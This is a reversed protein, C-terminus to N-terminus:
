QWSAETSLHSWIKEGAEEKEKVYARWRYHAYTSLCAVSYAEALKKNGRIVVFNEDNKQSASKSFNHSGTIVVCDDSLPDIVIMKSHTIAFGVNHLFSGRNVEKLWYAFDHPIGEPVVLRSEHTEGGNGHLTFSENGFSDVRDKTITSVVGKVMIDGPLGMITNLPEDGPQFMVYLVSEKAGKVLEVLANIDKAHEEHNEPRIPNFWVEIKGNGSTRPSEENAAKLEASQDDGADALRNWQDFYYTAIKEDAILIGNNVQTCLGTAAWNTSGTWAKLPKKTKKNYVVAFKNHGLGKNGLMRDRVDVKAGRLKARAEENEDGTKDAGNALVVHGRSRLLCLERLLEDDQLEFLCAYLELQSNEIVEDLLKLIALRLEGSTFRRLPEELEKINAKIDKPGWGNDRAVRSVFQSMVFGRNFYACIGDECDATVEIPETWGSEEIVELPSEGITDGDPLRVAQINYIVVEGSNAGHDTWSYSQFPWINSPKTVNPLDEDEPIQTVDKFGVRNRLIEVKGYVGRKVERKRLITFGLCEPIIADIERDIETRWFLQVDDCNKYAALHIKTAM